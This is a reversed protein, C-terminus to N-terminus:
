EFAANNIARDYKEQERNDARMAGATKVRSDQAKMVKLFLEARKAPPVSEPNAMIEQLAQASINMANSISDQLAQQNSLLTTTVQEEAEQIEGKHGPIVEIPDFGLDDSFNKVFYYWNQLKFTPIEKQVVELFFKKKNVKGDDSLLQNYQALIKPYAPHRKLSKRENEKTTAM